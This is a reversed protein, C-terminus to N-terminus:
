AFANPDYAPRSVMALVDGTEPDIVVAAGPHEGLSAEVLSQLGADLTLTIDRGPESPREGVTRIQRARHDVEVLVGGSRGRLTGDLKRELGARGILDNVRVGHRKLQAYEEPSPLGVYGLVHAALAGHPYARATEAQVLVGPLRWREEELRLAIDKPVRNVVTAPLFAFSRAKRYAKQLAQVPRQAIASVQTLVTHLEQDRLEQPVVAVRFVTQTAALIRGKRDYIVGRPAAEPVVRLRNQEALRRYGAGQLIQLHLLRGGILVLAIVLGIQLKIIRAGM